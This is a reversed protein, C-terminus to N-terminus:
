GGLRHPTYFVNAFNKREERKGHQSSAKITDSTHYFMLVCPPGGMEMSVFINTDLVVRKM